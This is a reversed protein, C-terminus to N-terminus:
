CCRRALWDTLIAVGEMFDDLDMAERPNHSGNANRVFIMGIPVGAACFAAADHSAPSGIPRSRIELRDASEGLERFIEPDVRAVEAATRQGFAFRVGREREIEHAIDHVTAELEAVHAEDYARVDMSFVLNGAVITLADNAADTHCRGITFAMDRGQEIWLRWTADFRWAFDAFALVADHRFQRPLGVHGYEGTISAVPHRFNGPIGTGIGVPHGSRELGPAQEIHVELFAAIRGPVIAPVGARIKEPDGGCERIHEALTRKTDVRRAQLFDPPLRGLASRSGVYSVQFWASEEARIAMVSIDCAPTLGLKQLGAIAALGAIVGAAGDFNGGNAVSDLHSGVIVAPRARDRGALTMYTNVAADQQLELGLRRGVGAIYDHAFQEGEGYSDRTVGPGGRESGTRLDDFLTGAFDRLGKTALSVDTAAVPDRPNLAM